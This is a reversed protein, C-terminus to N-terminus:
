IRMRLQDKLATNMENIVGIFISSKLLKWLVFKAVNDHRRKYEHQALKKSESVIHWVTEGKENCMRCLPSEHINM